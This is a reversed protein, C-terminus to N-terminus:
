IRTHTCTQTIYAYTCKSRLIYTFAISHIYTLMCAHSSTSTHLCAYVKIHKNTLLCTCSNIPCKYLEFYIYTYRFVYNRVFM